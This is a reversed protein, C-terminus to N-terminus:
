DKLVNLHDMSKYSPALLFIVFIPLYETTINMNAFNEYAKRFILCIDSQPIGLRPYNHMWKDDEGEVFVDRNVFGGDSIFPFVKLLM